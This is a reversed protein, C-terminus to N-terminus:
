FAATSLHSVVFASVAFMGVAWIGERFSWAQREQEIEFQKSWRSELEALTYKPPAVRRGRVKVSALESSDLNLDDPQVLQRHSKFDHKEKKVRTHKDQVGRREAKFDVRETSRDGVRRKELAAQHDDHLKFHLRLTDDGTAKRIHDELEVRSADSLGARLWLSMTYGWPRYAIVIGNVMNAHALTGNILHEMVSLFATYSHKDTESVNTLMTGGGQNASHEWMPTIDDRFIRASGGTSFKPEVRVNWTTAFAKFTGLTGVTELSNQFDADNAVQTNRRNNLYITWSSLESM